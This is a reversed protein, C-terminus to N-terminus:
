CACQCDCIQGRDHCRISGIDSAVAASCLDGGSNRTLSKRRSGLLWDNEIGPRMSKEHVTM